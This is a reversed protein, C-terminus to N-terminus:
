RYLDAAQQAAQEQENIKPQWGTRWHIQEASDDSDGSNRYFGGLMFIEPEEHEDEDSASSSAEDEDEDGKVEAFYQYNPNLSMFEEEYEVAALAARFQHHRPMHQLWAIERAEGGAGAGDGAGAGAGAGAGGGAQGSARGGARGGARASARGHIIKVDNCIIGFQREIMIILDKKRAPLIMRFTHTRGGMGIEVTTNVYEGKSLVIACRKGTRINDLILTSLSTTVPEAGFYLQESPNSVRIPKRGPFKYLESVDGNLILVVVTNIPLHNLYPIADHVSMCHVEFQGNPPNFGKEGEATRASGLVIFQLYEEKPDSIDSM